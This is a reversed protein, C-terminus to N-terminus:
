LGSTFAQGAQGPNSIFVSALFIGQIFTIKRKHEDNKRSFVVNPYERKVADVFKRIAVARYGRETAWGKYEDYLYLSEITNDPASETAELLFEQEHDCSGLYDEVAQRGEECHPFTKVDSLATLERLRVLGQIAWNLIGPLEELLEETLVYLGLASSHSVSLVTQVRRPAVANM